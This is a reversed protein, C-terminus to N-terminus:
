IKDFFKKIYFRDIKLECKDEAKLVLEGVGSVPYIAIKIHVPNELDSQMEAKGLFVEKEETRFYFAIRGSGCAEIEITNEEEFKIWRYFIECNEKIGCISEGQENGTFM